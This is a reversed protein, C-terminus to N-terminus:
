SNCVDNPDNSFVARGDVRLRLCGSASRSGTGVTIGFQKAAMARGAATFGVNGAGNESISIESSGPQSHDLFHVDLANPDAIFWGTNWGGPAAEVEVNRNRKVAESRAAMLAIRLDNSTARLRQNLIFDRFSPVGVALLIALLVLVIMLEVLTFGGSAGLRASAARAAM